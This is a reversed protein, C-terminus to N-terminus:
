VAPVWYNHQLYTETSLNKWWLILLVKPIYTHWVKEQCTEKLSFLQKYGSAETQQKDKIQRHRMVFYALQLTLFMFKQKSTTKM